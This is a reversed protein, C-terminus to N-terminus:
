HEGKNFDASFHKVASMVPIPTLGGMACLSASEMTDCLDKLIIHQTERETEDAAEVIKDIVEMGRVSGIRCPTCKGCSEVACFEMSFRAQKAMDVSDDFVVVGGHGLMGGAKAFEEYDLQTDLLSEPFYAGLPGGVQVARLPRGSHTGAGFDEILNRLTLGFAKEILGGEKIPVSALTIVNNVVTPKGFLGEIAPLPPKFRIQGRKGELSELLSTEEGCIYAGAGMFVELHFNKGSGQINVGLFGAAKANEIAENLIRQTLPYESRLYVYGTDAGVALGAITMGEILSLPDGEMILRDAFTGSDGEDANCVIYKQDAVCDAVTRWKIATPFAAGGRGRLGSDTMEAIIGDSDKALANKLGVFGGLSEYASVSTAEIIGCRAFTLREQNKFWPLENVDGLAKSHQGGDLFDADFLDPVDELTIPGYGVRGNDTEVEILPELFCAGRSGNRVLEIELNRYRAETDIAKAILEAGLSASTTERPIYIKISM